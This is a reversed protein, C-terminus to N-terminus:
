PHEIRKQQAFVRRMTPQSCEGEISRSEGIVQLDSDAVGFRITHNSFDIGTTGSVTDDLFEAYM